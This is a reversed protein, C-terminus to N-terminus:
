PTVLREIENRSIRRCRGVQTSRIEGCRMLNYITARAVGILAAAEGPSYALRGDPPLGDLGPTLRVVPPEAAQLRVNHLPRERTVADAELQALTERTVDHHEVDMRAVESWWGAKNRHSAARGVASLSIGVYLLRGEANFFRYLDGM